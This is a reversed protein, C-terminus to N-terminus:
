AGEKTAEHLNEPQPPMKPQKVPIRVIFRTDGAQNDTRNTWSTKACHADSHGPRTWNGEGVAKTTFFPDFIRTQIEAPVGPGNDGIEVAV